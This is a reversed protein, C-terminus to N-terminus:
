HVLVIPLTTSQASDTLRVFYVGPALPAGEGSLAEWPLRHISGDTYENWPTAVLRGAVDYISIRAPGPDPIVFQLETMPNFPNPVAAIRLDDGLVVVSSVGTASSNFIENMVTGTADETTFGLMAGITPTIDRLSRSRASVLGVEIDPGVALLQITRCGYCDCGHGTWDITHRGHDNTVFLTTKGAYAPHTEIFDWLMGVISDAIAICRTYEDWVGVHGAHDVNALYLMAFSPTHLTLLTEAEHWVDLDTYGLEHYLPWYDPGYDPDFSAKWACGVDKLVYICDEEPRSLQKRYYEFVTPLEAHNNTQGGCDPDSFTLVNTWAGCWIAPIARATYTFGDNRFPEIIAGQQALAWMEPVYEHDPDGLGESYRLGDIILVVVNESEYSHAPSVGPGLCLAACFLAALLAVARVHTNM